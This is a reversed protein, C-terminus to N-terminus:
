AVYYNTNIKSCSYYPNYSQVDIFDDMTQSSLNKERASVFVSQASDKPLNAPSISSLVVHTVSPSLSPPFPFPFSLPLYALLSPPSTHLSTTTLSVHQRVQYTDELNFPYIINDGHCGECIFGKQSCLQLPVLSLPPFPPFLLSTLLNAHTHPSPLFTVTTERVACEKVHKAGMKVARRMREQLAGSHVEVLEQARARMCVCVCM